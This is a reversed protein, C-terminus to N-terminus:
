PNIDQKRKLAMKIASRPTKQTKKIFAHLVIIRQKKATVYIVRAIGDNGRLRMEWLYDGLYKVYPEKVRAPGFEELMESIRLFRAKMSSSLGAIEKDVTKNLTEVKWKM